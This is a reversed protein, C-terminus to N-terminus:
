VSGNSCFGKIKGNNPNCHHFNNGQTRNIITTVWRHATNKDCQWLAQQGSSSTVNSRTKKNHKNREGWAKAEEAPWSPDFNETWEKEEWTKAARKGKLVFLCQSQLRESLLPMGGIIFGVSM